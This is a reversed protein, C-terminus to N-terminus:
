EGQNSEVGAQLKVFQKKWSLPPALCLGDRRVFACVNEMSNKSCINPNTHRCGVTQTLTDGEKLPEHFAGAQRSVDM